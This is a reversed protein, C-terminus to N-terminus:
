ATRFESLLQDAIEQVSIQSTDFRLIRLGPQNASLRLITREYAKRYCSLFELTTQMSRDKVPHGKERSRIREALDADTADLWIVLDLVNAWRSYLDKMLEIAPKKKHLYEPGFESAETLLYIPGQDLLVIDNNNKLEEQLVGCWGNLITLWAFERRSLWRDGNHTVDILSPILRLGYWVFFPANTVRRVDPFNSLRIGSGNRVLVDCLSSKGAGAPGVIEAIRPRGPKDGNNNTADM